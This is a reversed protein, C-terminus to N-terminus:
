QTQINRVDSPNLANFDEITKEFGGSKEFDPFRIVEPSMARYLQGEENISEYREILQAMHQIKDESYGCSKLGTIVIGLVRKWESIFLTKSLQMNSKQNLINELHGVTGEWKSQIEMNEASWKILWDCRFTDPLWNKIKYNM